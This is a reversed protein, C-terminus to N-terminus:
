LDILGRSLPVDLEADLQDRSSVEGQDILMTGRVALSPDSACKLPRGVIRAIAEQIEEPPKVQLDHLSMQTANFIAASLRESIVREM